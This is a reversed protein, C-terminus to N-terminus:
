IQVLPQSDEFNVGYTLHSATWLRGQGFETRYAIFMKFGLQTTGATVGALEAASINALPRNFGRVEDRGLPQTAEWFADEPTEWDRNKEVSLDVAFPACWYVDFATSPGVNRIKIQAYQGDAGAPYAMGEFRFSPEAILRAVDADDRMIKLTEANQRLSRYTFIVTAVLGATGAGAFVVQWFTLAVMWEANEDRIEQRWKGDSQDQM